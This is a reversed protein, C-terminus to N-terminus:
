GGPRLSAPLNEAIFIEIETHEITGPADTGGQLQILLRIARSLQTRPNQCIAVDVVGRGLLDPMNGALDHGILVTRDARGADELARAVGFLGGGAVYIGAIEARRTLLARATEWSDDDNEVKWLSPLTAMGPFRESLGQRFGREREVLDSYLETGAFVAVPGARGAGFRGMLAAATRGAALNDTGVYGSRRAGPIDSVLTVVPTGAEVLREVAGRVLPHDLGILAVGASRGALGAVAAALASPDLHPVRALLPRVRFTAFEQAVAEVSEALRAMFPNRDAPVLIHFDLPSRRSLSQAVMDPRWGISDAIALIRKATEPAVGKRRNLARDATALSVGAAAAIDFITPRQGDVGEKAM